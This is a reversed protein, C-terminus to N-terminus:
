DKKESLSEEVDSSDDDSSDSSKEADKEVKDVKKTFAEYTTEKDFPRKGILKELDSQFIIEKELLEQALKELEPKRQNLLQKTRDYAFTIM